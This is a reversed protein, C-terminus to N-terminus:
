QGDRFRQFETLERAKATLYRVSDADLQRILALLEIQADTLGDGEPTAAKEPEPQIDEGSELKMLDAFSVNLLEAMKKINSLRPNGGDRRWKYYSQPSVGLDAAFDTVQIRRKKLELDIYDM